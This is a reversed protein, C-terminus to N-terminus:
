FPIPQPGGDLRARLQALDSETQEQAHRTVLRGFMRNLPKTYETEMRVELRTGGPREQLSFARISTFGDAIIREELLRGPECRIVEVEAETRVGRDRVVERFRTGAAVEGPTLQEWGDVVGNWDRRLAPDVLHLFVAQPSSELEIGHVNRHVM